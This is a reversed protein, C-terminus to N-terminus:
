IAVPIKAIGPHPDYEEVVFDSARFAFLDKTPNTLKLVPFPRPERQLMTEVSPVQDVFIHADSITHVYEYAELGLVQAMMLTLATYQIMNSPVGVPVDGSRQMMHVILKNDFIRFHLWGHCPCVVVKQQRGELRATYQPIWPSIFHTKLHPQEKMQQVMAAFQNFSEGEATPFDHFASGYSGPGLDGTELGRKKCKEETVWPAWWYCGFKELEVQTRAGNMFGIIEGIAQQWVTPKGNKFVPAMNRETILPVGNTLTFRMPPAGVLSITDVGQQATSKIGDKLILKLLEQYQYDPTRDILPKYDIMLAVM